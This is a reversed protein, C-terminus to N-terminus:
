KKSVFELCGFVDGIMELFKFAGDTVQLNGIISDPVFNGECLFVTFDIFRQDIKVLFSM